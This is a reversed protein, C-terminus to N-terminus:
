LIPKLLSIIKDTVNYRKPYKVEKNKVADILAAM